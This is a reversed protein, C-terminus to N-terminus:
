GQDSFTLFLRMLCVFSFSRVETGLINELENENQLERGKYILRSKSAVDEDISLIDQKIKLVTSATSIDLYREEAVNNYSLIFFKAKISPNTGLSGGSTSHVFDM